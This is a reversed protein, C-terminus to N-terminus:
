NKNQKKGALAFILVTEVNNEGRSLLHLNGNEVSWQYANELLSFYDREKLKEPEHIPVVTTGAVTKITIAQGSEASYPAFYRNPAGIGNAREIDFRLTFIEGFGESVLKSRDFIIHGSEIKVEVLNWDKNTVGSFRPASTCAACLIIFLVSIVFSKKM